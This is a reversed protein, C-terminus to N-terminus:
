MWLVSGKKFGVCLLITGLDTNASINRSEISPSIIEISEGCSVSPPAVRLGFSKEKKNLMSCAVGGVVNAFEAVMAVIEGREKAQRRLIVEAMKEATGATLDLIMTGPYKGIIGIVVTIGRSVLHNKGAPQNSAAATLKTMRAFSQSLAESFIEGSWEVLNQFALDPAMVNKIVNMLAENDIPKQVYGAVGTRRAEVEMEEDKMSSVLIIKAAPDHRLLAKSCEFGDAGPMAIDMTVIDPRCTQYTEILGELSGAEGVVECSNEQLSDALLTRSFPSDDVVLVRIIGM